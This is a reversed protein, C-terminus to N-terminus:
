FGAMEIDCSQGCNLIEIRITNHCSSFTSQSTKAAWEGGTTLNAIQVINTSNRDFVPSNLVRNPNTKCSNYSYLDSQLDSLPLHFLQLFQVIQANIM